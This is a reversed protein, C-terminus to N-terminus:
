YYFNKSRNTKVITKTKVKRIYATFKVGNEKLERLFDEFSEYYNPKALEEIKEKESKDYEVVNNDFFLIMNVGGNQEFYPIFLIVIYKITM